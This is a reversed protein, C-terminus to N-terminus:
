KLVFQQRYMKFAVIEFSTKAFKSVGRPDIHTAIIAKFKQSELLRIDNEDYCFWYPIIAVDAGPQLGEFTKAGPAADGFHVFRYQGWKIEIRYNEIYGNRNGGSHGVNLFSISIHDSLKVTGKQDVVNLSTKAVKPLQDAPQKGMVVRVPSLAQSLQTILAEDFHDNHMHTATIAVLQRFPKERINLKKLIEPDTPTYYVDYYDHLADILIVSDNKVIAVGMNGVYYVAPKENQASASLAIALLIFILRLRM